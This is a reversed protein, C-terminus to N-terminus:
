EFIEKRDEEKVGTPDYFCDIKKIKEGEFRMWIATRLAKEQGKFFTDCVMLVENEGQVRTKFDIRQVADSFGCAARTVADAGELHGLPTTFSVDEHYFSKIKDKKNSELNNYYAKSIELLKM